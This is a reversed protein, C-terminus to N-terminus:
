GDFFNAPAGGEWHGRQQRHYAVLIVGLQRELKTIERIEDEGISALYPQFLRWTIWLLACIFFGIVLALIITM